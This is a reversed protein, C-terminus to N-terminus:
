ALMVSLIFAGWFHIRVRSRPGQSGGQVLSFVKRVNGPGHTLGSSDQACLSVRESLILALLALSCATSALAHPLAEQACCPCCCSSQWSSDSIGTM